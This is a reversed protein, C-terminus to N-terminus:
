SMLEKIVELGKRCSFSTSIFTEEFIPNIVNFIGHHLIRDRASAKHVHRRKPDTIYFDTYPGHKYFKDRLERHLKFINGELQWEFELVDAKNRKDIKFSDWASFLNEASIIKNFLSNYIKMKFKIFSNSIGINM